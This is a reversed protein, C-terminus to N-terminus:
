VIKVLHTVQLTARTALVGALRKFAPSDDHQRFAAEDSWRELMVFRHSATADRHLEYQECGPEKRVEPVAEELAQSVTGAHEPVAEIVAVIIQKSM